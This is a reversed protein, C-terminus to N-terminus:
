CVTSRCFSTLFISRNSSRQFSLLNYSVSTSPASVSSRIFYRIILYSSPLSRVIWHAFFASFHNAYLRLAFCCVIRTIWTKNVFTFISPVSHFWNTRISVVSFYIVFLFDPKVLFSCATSRFFAIFPKCKLRLSFTFLVISGSIVLERILKAASFVVTRTFQFPSCLFDPLVLPSRATSRSFALCPTFKM